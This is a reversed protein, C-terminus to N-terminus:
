EVDDEDNEGECADSDGDDAGMHKDFLEVVYKDMFSSVYEQFHSSIDLFDTSIKQYFERLLTATNGKLLEIYESSGKFDEIALTASNEALFLRSHLHEKESICGELRSETESLEVKIKEFDLAARHSNAKLIEMEFTLRGESAAHDYILKEQCRILDNCRLIAKEKEDLASDREERIKRMSKARLMCNRLMDAALSNVHRSVSDDTVEVGSPLVYPTDVFYPHESKYGEESGIPMFGVSHDPSHRPSSPKDQNPKGPYWIRQVPSSDLPEALPTRMIVKLYISYHDHLHRLHSKAVMSNTTRSRFGELTQSDRVGPDNIPAGETSEAGEVGETFPSVKLRKAKRKQGEGSAMKQKFVPANSIRTAEATPERLVNSAFVEAEETEPNGVVPEEFNFGEQLTRELIGGPVLPQNRQSSDKSAMESAEEENM